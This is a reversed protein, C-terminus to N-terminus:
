QVLVDKVRDEDQDKDSCIKQRLSPRYDINDVIVIGPVAVRHLDFIPNAFIPVVIALFIPFPYLLIIILKFDV